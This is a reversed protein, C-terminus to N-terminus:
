MLEAARQKQRRVLLISAVAWFGIRLVLAWVTQMEYAGGTSIHWFFGLAVITTAGTLVVAGRMACGRDLWMHVATGIYVFGAFFNFWLVFPVFNGVADRASQPGFLVSGAKFLTVVGFVFAVAALIRITYPIKKM